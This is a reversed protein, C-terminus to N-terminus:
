LSGRKLRSVNGSGRRITLTSTYSHDDQFVRVPTVSVSEDDGIALFYSGACLGGFFVRGGTSQKVSKIQSQGPSGFRLEVRVKEGFTQLDVSYKIDCSYAATPGAAFMLALAIRIV